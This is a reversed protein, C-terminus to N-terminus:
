EQKNLLEENRKVTYLATTLIYVYGLKINISQMKNMTNKPKTHNSSYVVAVSTQKNHLM